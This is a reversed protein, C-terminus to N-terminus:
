KAIEIKFVAVGGRKTRDPKIVVPFEQLDAAKVQRPKGDDWLDTIRFEAVNELPTGAFSINLFGKVTQDTTNGCVIIAKHAGYLMYPAPISDRDVGTTQLPVAKLPPKEDTTVARFLDADAKRIAIMRTVDDLMDQKSPQKMQEWDIMSGYLWRGKGHEGKGYLDPTHAPLPIYDANFEEGSMFVPISPTFLLSYGFMSRSGQAVYPNKDLPFGDWGDDHCSLQTSYLLRDPVFPTIEMEYHDSGSLGAPFSGQNGYGYPLEWGFPQLSIQEIVKAPNIGDIRLRWPERKEPVPPAPSNLLTLRLAGKPNSDRYGYTVGVLFPRGELYGYDTSQDTYRISAEIIRFYDFQQYFEAVNRHLLVNMDPGMKSESLKVAHQLFDGAGESYSWNENFVVIPHGAAAANQKVRKWLDPRYIAVDLRFGDVGYDTVWDTFTKVWWEDLDKRKGEWDFDTMEWSGDRFWEPHEKVLPSDNMVGHTIVDMLINIGRRHAEDILVKFEEPTGLVPDLKSPDISAYQTWINYFHKGDCLNTGTLWIGNIGLKQLYPLKERVGVFGGSEPGKPSTFGRTAIEYIILDKVWNSERAYEAM